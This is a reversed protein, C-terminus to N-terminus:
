GLDTDLFIPALAIIAPNIIALWTLRLINLYALFAILLLGGLLNVYSRRFMVIAAFLMLCWSIELYRTAATVVESTFGFAIAILSYIIPRFVQLHQFVPDSINSKSVEDLRYFLMWAIVLTVFPELYAFVTGHNNEYDAGHPFLNLLLGASLSIALAVVAYGWKHKSLFENVQRAAFIVVLLASIHSAIALASLVFFHFKRDRYALSLMVLSIALGARMAAFELGPAIFIAYLVIFGFTYEPALTRIFFYKFLMSFTCIVLFVLKADESFFISVSAIVLFLADKAYWLKITWEDSSMVGKYMELYNDRDIGVERWGSFIAIAVASFFAIV